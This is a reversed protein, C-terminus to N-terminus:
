TTHKPERCMEPFQLCMMYFDRRLYDTIDHEGDKKGYVELYGHSYVIDILAEAAALRQLIPENTHKFYIVPALAM